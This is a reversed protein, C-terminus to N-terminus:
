RAVEDDPRHCTLFLGRTSWDYITIKMNPRNTTPLPLAERRASPPTALHALVPPAAPRPNTHRHRQAPAPDRKLDVPDPRSAGTTNITRPRHHHRPLRPRAHGPHDLTALLELHPGPTRGARVPGQRSPLEEVTWWRGAVKVLMSLPVPEPSYCRYYALEGTTPNRRVMLWRHRPEDGHEDIDILAWDYIRPGKAGSGAPLRQWAGGPCRTPSRTPANSARWRSSTTAAPGPWCAPADGHM